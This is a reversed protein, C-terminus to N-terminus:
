RADTNATRGHRVPQEKEWERANEGSAKIKKELKGIVLRM